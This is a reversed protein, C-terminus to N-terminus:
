GITSVETRIYVNLGIFLSLFFHFLFRNSQKVKENMLLEGFYNSTGCSEDGLIMFIPPKSSVSRHESITQGNM